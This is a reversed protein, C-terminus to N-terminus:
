PGAREATAEATLVERAERGTRQGAPAVVGKMLLWPGLVLEFVAMPLWIYQTLPGSLIGVLQAPLAVVLLVSALIGLRGLAAPIMRGRLLLWSFLTSGLAFLTAAITTNWGRVKLLFAGLVDAAAADPAAPGTGATGLWLLGLTALPAIAALLGEGVRFCLALLALDRDEDRTIGYLAVGLAMATVCTFLSLVMIVRVQSANQAMLALRASTSEAQTPRGLSMQAIGIAIYLLFAFGALRANTGRTM